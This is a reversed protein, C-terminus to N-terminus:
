LALASSSQVERFPGKQGRGSSGDCASTATRLLVKMAHNFRPPACRRIRVGENSAPQHLPSWCTPPNRQSHALSCLEHFQSQAHQKSAVTQHKPAEAKGSHYTSDPRAEIATAPPSTALFGDYTRPIDRTVHCRDQSRIRRPCGPNVGAFSPARRAIEPRM